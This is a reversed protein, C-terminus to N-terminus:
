ICTASRGSAGPDCPGDLAADDSRRVRGLVEIARLGLLRGVDDAVDVPAGVQQFKQQTQDVRM